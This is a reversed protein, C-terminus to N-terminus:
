RKFASSLDSRHREPPRPTQEPDLSPSPHLPRPTAEPDPTPSFDTDPGSGSDLTNGSIKVEPTIPPGSLHPIGQALEWPPTTQGQRPKSAPSGSYISTDQHSL